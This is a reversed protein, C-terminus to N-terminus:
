GNYHGNFKCGTCPCWNKCLGSPKADWKNEEHAIELRKVRPLFENWIAQADGRTFEDKDMSGDKLWIFGTKIRELAPWVAFGLAAFLKLQDSDPKRRGTKWDWFAGLHGRIKGIDIVGRVWVDKAFWETERLDQTLAIQREVLLEGPAATIKDVMEQWGQTPLIETKGHVDTVQIKKPIPTGNLARLEIVKHGGEGALMAAGKPETVQKAVRTLYHKLGCTEFSTLASYSWAVTM